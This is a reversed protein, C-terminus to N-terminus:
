QWDDSPQLIKVAIYFKQHPVHSFGTGASNWSGFHGVQPGLEADMTAWELGLDLIELLPWDAGVLARVGAVGLKHHSLRLSRLAPWAAAALEGASHVCLRNDSLDLHALSTWRSRALHSVMARCTRGAMRTGDDPADPLVWSLGTAELSTLLLDATALHAFGDVYMDLLRRAQCRPPPVVLHRCGTASGHPLQWWHPNSCNVIRPATLKTAHAAVAARGARCTLRMSRLTPLDCRSLISGALDSELLNPM